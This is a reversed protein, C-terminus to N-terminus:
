IEFGEDLSVRECTEKGNKFRWKEFKNGNRDTLLDCTEVGDEACWNKYTSGDPDTRLDCTEVKGDYRWNKHTQNFGNQLLACTQVGNQDTIIENGFSEEFTKSYYALRPDVPKGEVTFRLDKHAVQVTKLLGDEVRLELRLDGVKLLLIRKYGTSTVMSQHPINLKEFQDHSLSAAKGQYMFIDSVLKLEQTLSLMLPRPISVIGLVEKSAEFVRMLDVEERTPGENSPSMIELRALRAATAAAVAPAAPAAAPPAAAKQPQGIFTHSM